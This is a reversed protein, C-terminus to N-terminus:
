DLDENNDHAAEFAALYGGDLGDVYQEGLLERQTLVAADLDRQQHREERRDIREGAEVEGELGREVFVADHREGLQLEDITAFDYVEEARGSGAITMQRQREAHLGDFGYAADVEGRETLEDARERRLRFYRRASECRM